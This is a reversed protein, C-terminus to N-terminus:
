PVRKVSVLRHNCPGRERASPSAASAMRAIAV